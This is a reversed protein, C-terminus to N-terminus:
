VEGKVQNGSDQRYLFISEVRDTHYNLELRHRMSDHSEFNM